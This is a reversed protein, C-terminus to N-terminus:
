FGFCAPNVLPVITLPMRSDPLDVCCVCGDYKVEVCLFYENRCHKAHCAPQIGAMLYVDEPSIKKQVGKKKSFEQVEYKIKDLQVDMEKKWDGELAAPGDVKQEVLHNTVVHNHHGHTITLRQEVFLNVETVKLKCESNDVNVTAHAVEHPTFINKNFTSWMTSHGQDICCCTKINSREKQEEGEKYAVAPERITLVQKHKM